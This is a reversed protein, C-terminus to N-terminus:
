AVPEVLCNVIEAYHEEIQQKALALSTFRGIAIRSTKAEYIGATQNHRVYYWGLRTKYEWHTPDREHWEPPVVLVPGTPLVHRRPPLTELVVAPYEADPITVVTGDPARHESM